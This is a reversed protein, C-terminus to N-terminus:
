ATRRSRRRVERSTRSNFDMLAKLTPLHVM